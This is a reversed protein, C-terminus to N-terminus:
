KFRNKVFNQLSQTIITYNTNIIFSITLNRTKIFKNIVYKIRTM